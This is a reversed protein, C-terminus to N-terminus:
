RQYLDAACAGEGKIPSPHPSPSFGTRAEGEGEGEGEGMFPPPAFLGAMRLEAVTDGRGGM